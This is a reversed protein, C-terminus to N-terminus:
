PRWGSRQLSQFGVVYPYTSKELIPWHVITFGLVAGFVSGIAFGLLAEWVTIGAHYWYGGPDGAGAGARERARALGTGSASRYLDASAVCPQRGVM